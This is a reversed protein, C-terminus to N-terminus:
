APEEEERPMWAETPSRRPTGQGLGQRGRRGGAQKRAGQGRVWGGESQCGERREPYGEETMECAEIM